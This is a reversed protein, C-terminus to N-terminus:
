PQKIKKNIEEIAKEFDSGQLGELRAINREIEAAEADIQDEGIIGSMARQRLIAKARKGYAAIQKEKSQINALASTKEAQAAAVEQKFTVDKYTEPTIPPKEKEIKELDKLMKKGEATQSITNFLATKEKSLIKMPSMMATAYAAKGAGVEETPTGPAGFIRPYDTMLRSVGIWELTSVFLNYRRQAKESQLPYVYGNVSSIDTPSALQPIIEEGAIADILAKPLIAIHEAPVKTKEPMQSIDFSKKVGPVLMQGVTDIIRGEALKTLFSIGSMISDPPGLTIFTNDGIDFADILLREQASEPLYSVEAPDNGLAGEISRKTKVYKYLRNAGEVSALNKVINVVNNRQFNYFLLFRNSQKEINTIDGVDYLSKRALKVAEDMSRGNKLADILVATRFTLDEKQAINNLFEAFGKINDAVTKNDKALRTAEETVINPSFQSYVSKGGLVKAAEKIEAITYARGAKDTFAIANSAIEPTSLIRISAPVQSISNIGTKGLSNMLVSPAGLINGGHFRPTLTLVSTYFINELADTTQKFMKELTGWENADYKMSILDQLNKSIKNGGQGIQKKINNFVDEGFLIKAQKELTPNEFFKAVSEAIKEPNVGQVIGNAKAITTALDDAELIIEAISNQGITDQAISDLKSAINDPLFEKAIDEGKINYMDSITKGAANQKLRHAVIQGIANKNENEILNLISRSDESLNTYLNVGTKKIPGSVLDQLAETAIREAEARYYSGIQLEVPLKDKKIRTIKNATEPRKLYSVDRSLSQAADIANDMNSWLSKPDKQIKQVIDDIISELIIRGDKNFVSYDRFFNAGVLTEFIDEKARGEYISSSIASEIVKKIIDVNDIGEPGVVLYALADQKTLNRLNDSGTYLKSFQPDKLIKSMDNRLKIDMNAAKQNATRLLEKQGPSVDTRLYDSIGSKKRNVYDKFIDRGWSKTELPELLKEVQQSNDLLLADRARVSKQSAEALIDVQADLMKRLSPLSVVKDSNALAIISNATDQSLTRFKSLESANRVIVNAQADTLKVYTEIRPSTWPALINKEIRAIDSTATNLVEL